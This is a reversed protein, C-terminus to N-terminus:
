ARHKPDILPVGLLDELEGLQEPPRSHFYGFVTRRGRAGTADARRGAGRLGANTAVELATVDSWSWTVVRSPIGFTTTVWSLTRAIPDVVIRVRRTAYAVGWLALLTGPVLSVPDTHAEEGPRLSLWQAAVIATPVLILLAMGWGTAAKLRVTSVEDTAFTLTDPTTGARSM